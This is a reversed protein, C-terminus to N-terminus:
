FILQKLSWINVNLDAHVACIQPPSKEAHVWYATGAVAALHCCAGGGRVCLPHSSSNSVRLRNDHSVPIPPHTEISDNSCKQQRASRTGRLGLRPHSRVAARACHSVYAGQGAGRLM